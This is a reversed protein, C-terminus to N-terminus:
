RSRLTEVNTAAAPFLGNSVEVNIPFSTGGNTSKAMRISRNPTGLQTFSNPLRSEYFVYVNGRSDVVPFAGFAANAGSVITTSQIIPNLTLGTSFKSFRIRTGPDPLNFDTWATYLAESLPQNIPTNADPGVTIWEKDQEFDVNPNNDGLNQGRGVVQPLNMNITGGANITGTSVSIVSESTGGILESGIQGYYFVGNRDVAISPDGGNRGGPNVPLSGGDVWTNGLNTSFALGSFSANGAGGVNDNSDNFGYLIDDNFRALSTESQTIRPFNASDDAPNNVQREREKHDCCCDEDKKREHEDHKKHSM